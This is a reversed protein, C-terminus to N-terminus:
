LSQKIIKKWRITCIKYFKSTASCKTVRINQSISCENYLCIYKKTAARSILFFIM